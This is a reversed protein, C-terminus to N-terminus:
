INWCLGLALDHIISLIQSIRMLIQFLVLVGVRLAWEELM